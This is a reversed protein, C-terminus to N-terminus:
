LDDEKELLESEDGIFKVRVGPAVQGKPVIQKPPLCYCAFQVKKTPKEIKGVTCKPSEIKKAHRDCASQMSEGPYYIAEGGIMYKTKKPPRIGTAPKGSLRATNEQKFAALAQEAKELDDEFKEWKKPDKTEDYDEGISKGIAVIKQLRETIRKLDVPDFHTAQSAFTENTEDLTFNERSLANLEKSFAQYKNEIEQRDSPGRGSGNKCGFLGVSSTVMMALLLLSTRGM